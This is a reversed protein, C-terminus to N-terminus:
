HIPPPADSEGDCGDVDPHHHWHHQPRTQEHKTEPRDTDEFAARLRDIRDGFDKPWDGDWRGMRECRKIPHLENWGEHFNDYVWSGEVYLLDAGLNNSAPDNTHLAGLNPDVDAPSGTDGLGVAGGILAALFALFALIAAVIAGIPGPIAMCAFFAAIALVLGVQLGILLDRMGAGEFEAHLVAYKVGTAKDTASEGPTALGLDGIAQQHKILKGFPPRMEAVAQTLDPPGPPNDYLLLNISYDTDFAGLGDKGTAPEISVLMGAAFRDGGLCILRDHLWWQCFAIGGAFLFVQGALLLCWPMGGALAFAALLGAPLLGQLVASVYPNLGLRDEPRVCTTYQNFPM